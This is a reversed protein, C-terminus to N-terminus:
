QSRIRVKGSDVIAIADPITVSSEAINTAVIVQLGSSITVHAEKEQTEIQV